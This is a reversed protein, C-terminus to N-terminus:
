LPSVQIVGNEIRAIETIRQGPVNPGNDEPARAVQGAIRVLQPRMSGATISATEDGASGAHAVGRLTGFVVINGEAVVEAGPNVDGGIVLHGTHVIRQGSRITQPLYLANNGSTIDRSGEESRGPLMLYTNLWLGRAAERTLTDTSVIAVTVLGYTTKLRDVLGILDTHPISRNGFDLTIQAGFWTKNNKAEELKGSIKALAEAWTGDTPVVLLLENLLGNRWGTLEIQQNVSM